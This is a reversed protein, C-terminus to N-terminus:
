FREVVGIASPEAAYWDNLTMSGKPTLEGADAEIFNDPDCVDGAILYAMSTKGIGSPGSIWFARGGLSGRQKMALIARKHKAHGVLQDWRTPRHVQFLALAM